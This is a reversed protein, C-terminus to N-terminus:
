SLLALAAGSTSKNCLYLVAFGASQQERIGRHLCYEFGSTRCAM